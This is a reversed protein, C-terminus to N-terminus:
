TFPYEGLKKTWGHRMDGGVAAHKKVLRYLACIRKVANSSVSRPSKSGQKKGTRVGQKRSERRAM